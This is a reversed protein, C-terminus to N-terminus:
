GQFEPIDGTYLRVVLVFTALLPADLLLWRHWRSGLRAAHGLAALFLLLNLTAPPLPHLTTLYSYGTPWEPVQVVAYPAVWAQVASAGLLPVGACLLVLELPTGKLLQPRHGAVLLGVFSLLLVLFFILVSDGLERWTAGLVGLVLQVLLYGMAGLWLGLSARPSDRADGEGGSMLSPDQDQGFM